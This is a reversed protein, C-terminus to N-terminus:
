DGQLIRLMEQILVVDSYESINPLRARIARLTLGELVYTKFSDPLIYDSKKDMRGNYWM